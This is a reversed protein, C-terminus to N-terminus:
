RADDLLSRALSGLSRGHTVLGHQQRRTAALQAHSSAYRTAGRVVASAQRFSLGALPETMTAGLQRLPDRVADVHEASAHIEVIAGDLSVQQALQHAVFKGWADRYAATTDGLFLDYPALHDTPAVLAHKASLIFWPVGSREAYAREKRFLNSSYLDRAPAPHDLKEKVCTVLIVSPSGIDEKAALPSHSPWEPPRTTSRVFTISQGITVNAARFGPWGSRDGSWFAQHVYASRPLEGVLAELDAWSYTISSRVDALAARLPQWSAM